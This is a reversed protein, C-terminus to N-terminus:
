AVISDTAPPEKVTKNGLYKIIETEGNEKVCGNLPSFDYFVKPYFFVTGERGIAARM